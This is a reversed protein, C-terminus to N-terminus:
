WAMFWGSFQQSHSRKNTNKINRQKSDGKIRGPCRLGKSPTQFERFQEANTNSNPHLNLLQTTTLNARSRICLMTKNTFIHLFQTGGTTVQCYHVRHYCIRSLLNSLSIHSIYIYVKKFRKKKATEWNETKESKPNAETKKEYVQVSVGISRICNGVGTHQLHCWKPQSFCYLHISGPRNQCRGTIASTTPRIIQQTFLSAHVVAQSGNTLVVVSMPSMGCICAVCCCLM